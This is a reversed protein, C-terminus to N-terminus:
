QIRLHHRIWSQLRSGKILFAFSYTLTFSVILTPPVFRLITYYLLLILDTDSNYIRLFCHSFLIGRRRKNDFSSGVIIVEFILPVGDHILRGSASFLIMAKADLLFFFISSSQHNFSNACFLNIFIDSIFMKKTYYYFEM